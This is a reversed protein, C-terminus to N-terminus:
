ESLVYDIYVKIKGATATSDLLTAVVTRDATLKVYEAISDNLEGDVIGTWSGAATSAKLDGTTQATFEIKLNAPQPATIVDFFARRIIANDPLTIGVGYSGNVGTNFNAFDYVGVATNHAQRLKTGLKNNFAAPGLWRDLQFATAATPVESAPAAAFATGVFLALTVLIKRM